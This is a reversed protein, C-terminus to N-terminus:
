WEQVSCQGRCVEVNSYGGRDNVMHGQGQLTSLESSNAPVPSLAQNRTEEVTTQGAETVEGSGWFEERELGRTRAREM